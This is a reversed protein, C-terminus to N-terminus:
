QESKKDIYELCKLYYAYEFDSLKDPDCGLRLRILFDYYAIPFEDPLDSVQGLQTLLKKHDFQGNWVM